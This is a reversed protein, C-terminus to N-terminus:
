IQDIKRTMRHKTIRFGCKDHWFRRSSINTMRWDTSIWEYGKERLDKIAYNMLTSGVGSNSVESFTGAIALELCKTPVLYGPELEWLGQFALPEAREAIYFIVEDDDVLGVFGERVSKIYSPSAIAYIPADNQYTHIVDAMKRLTNSDDKRLYRITAKADSVLEKYDEIKLIGYVQQYAFGLMQLSKIQKEINLSEIVHDRYGQKVWKKSCYKYLEYIIKDEDAGHVAIGFSPVWAQKKENDRLEAVIFGVLRDDIYCVAGSVQKNEIFQSIENDLNGKAISMYENLELDDYITALSDVIMHKMEETVHEFELIEM